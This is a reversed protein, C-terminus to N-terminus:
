TARAAPPSSGAAGAPGRSDNSGARPDRLSTWGFGATMASDRRTPHYAMVFEVPRVFGIPEPLRRKNFWDAWEPTAREVYGRRALSTRHRVLHLPSRM